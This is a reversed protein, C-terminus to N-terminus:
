IPFVAEIFFQPQTELAKLLGINNIPDNIKENLTYRVISGVKPM